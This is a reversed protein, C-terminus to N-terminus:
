GFFMFVQLYSGQSSVRTLKMVVQLNNGVFDKIKTWGIHTHKDDLLLSLIGHGVWSFVVYINKGAYKNNNLYLYPFKYNEMNYGCIYIYFSLLIYLLCTYHKTTTYNFSHELIRPLVIFIIEKNQGNIYTILTHLSYM